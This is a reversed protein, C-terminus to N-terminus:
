FLFDKDDHLITRSPIYEKVRKNEDIYVGKDRFEVMSPVANPHLSKWREDARYTENWSYPNPIGLKRCHRTFRFLRKFREERTPACNLVWTNTILLEKANEPYLLMRQNAWKDSGPQGSYYYYFPNCEAQWIDNQTEELFDLTQQFDEETEGPFGIVFYATTKIGANALNALTIKSQQITINKEMIDLVRQSGTEIGMRVRYLGGRRWLLTKNFDCTEESVRLYADLYASIGSKILEEALESVISNILSDTLFYLQYGHRQYLKGLEEVVQRVPKQRYEGFFTAVNCFRCQHPCSWSAGAAMYPYHALNFDSIDPLSSTVPPMGSTDIDKKTFVRQSAPLEGALLKLLLHQGEGVIIKDIYPSKELFFNFDPSGLPLEGSFITGGIVTLMHPYKEKTLRLTYMCSSLTGLNATLGVVQPNERELLKFFYRRLQIFYSDIISNLRAIETDDPHCYFTHYILLKVLQNYQGENEGTRNMHAMMHNRLVDHGINYFNGHNDKPVYTELANFYEQYINKFGTETNADETRVTYNNAQLFTKIAAIGQPPILPTWYPLLVLLIKEPRCTRNKTINPEM